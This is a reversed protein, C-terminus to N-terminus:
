QANAHSRAAVGGVDSEGYRLLMILVRLLMILVRLLMILVRLLAM